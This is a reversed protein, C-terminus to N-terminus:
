PEALWLAKLSSRSHEQIRSILSLGLSWTHFCKLRVSDSHNPSFSAFFFDFIKRVLFRIMNTFSFDIYEYIKYKM